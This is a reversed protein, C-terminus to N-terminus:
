LNIQMCKCFRFDCSIMLGLRGLVMCISFSFWSEHSNDQPEYHKKGEGKFLQWIGWLFCHNKLEQETHCLQARAWSCWLQGSSTDWRRHGLQNQQLQEWPVRLGPLEEVAPPSFEFGKLNQAAWSNGFERKCYWDHDKEQQFDAGTNPCASLFLLSTEGRQLQEELSTNNRQHHCGRKGEQRPLNWPPKLATEPHHHHDRHQCSGQGRGQQPGHCVPVMQQHLQCVHSGGELEPHEVPPLALLAPHTKGEPQPWSRLTAQSIFVSKALGLEQQPASPDAQPPNTGGWGACVLPNRM